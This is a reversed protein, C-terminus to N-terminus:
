LAPRRKHWETQREFTHAARLITGEEFPRGAIQMGIPLGEKTFGCPVSVTPLGVQNFPFTFGAISYAYLRPEPKGNIFFETDTLLPAVIPCTPTIMVDTEALADLFQGRLVRRLRQAKIYDTATIFRAAQLRQLLPPGYKEPCREVFEEHYAAAEAWQITFGIELNREVLPVSVDRVTAGQAELVRVGDLVGQKVQADVVDFFWERPLGIRLGKVGGKLARAYNPVKAKSSTPDKPDYGAIASLALATDEVTRTLPGANDFSWNLPLVGYRSVRGYTPKLGVIGSFTAPIRISGGTDHGTAIPCLSAAVAASSGGSSTGALRELDWPNHMGGFVSPSIAFEALHTKGIIIAGAQRFREVVTADHDPVYDELVRSGATTRVGKTEFNDKLAVPVGYLPGLSAGQRAAKEARRAEEMAEEEMVSLFANLRGNLSRIRALTAEIVEGPSVKGTRTLRAQEAATLTALDTM